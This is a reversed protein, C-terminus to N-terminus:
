CIGGWSQGPSRPSGQGTWEPLGATWGAQATPRHRQGAQKWIFCVCLRRSGERGGGRQCHRSSGEHWASHGGAQGGVREEAPRTGPM